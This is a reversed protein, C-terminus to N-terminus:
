HYFMSVFLSIIQLHSIAPRIRHANFKIADLDKQPLAININVLSTEIDAVCQNIIFLLTEHDGGAIEEIETLNYLMGGIKRALKANLYSLYM